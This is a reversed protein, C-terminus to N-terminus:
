ARRLGAPVGQVRRVAALHDAACLRADPHHARRRPARAAQVRHVSLHLLPRLGPHLDRHPCGPAQAEEASGLAHPRSRPRWALRLEAHQARQADFLGHRHTHQGHQEGGVGQGTTRVDGPQRPWGHRRPQGGEQPCQAQADRGGRLPQLGRRLGTEACKAAWGRAGPQPISPLPHPSPLARRLNPAPRRRGCEQSGLARCVKMKHGLGGAMRMAAGWHVGKIPKAHKEPDSHFHPLHFHPMHVHSMRRRINPTSMLIRHHSPSSSHSNSKMYSNSRSIPKEEKERGGGGGKAPASGRGPSKEETSATDCSNVSSAADTIEQSGPMKSRAPGTVGYASAQAARPRLGCSSSCRPRVAHRHASPWHFYQGHLRGTHGSYTACTMM